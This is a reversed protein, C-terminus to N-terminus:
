AYLSFQEKHPFKDNKVPAFLAKAEENRGKNRGPESGIKKKKRKKTACLLVIKAHRVIKKKFLVCGLRKFFNKFFSFFSGIKQINFIVGTGGKGWLPCLFLPPPKIPNEM